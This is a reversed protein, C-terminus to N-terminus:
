LNDKDKTEASAQLKEVLLKAVEMLGMEAAHHLPTKGDDDGVNVFRSYEGIRKEIGHADNQAAAYHLPTFDIRGFEYFSRQLKAAPQGELKKEYKKANKYDCRKRFRRAMELAAVYDGENAAEGYLSSAQKEDGSADCSYALYHLSSRAKNDSLGLLA